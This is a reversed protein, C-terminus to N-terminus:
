LLVCLKVQTEPLFTGLAEFVQACVHSSVFCAGFVLDLHVYTSGPEVMGLARCLWGQEELRM